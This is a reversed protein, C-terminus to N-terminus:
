LTCVHPHFPVITITCSSSLHHTFAHVCQEAWIGIYFWPRVRASCPVYLLCSCLIHVIFCLGSLLLIDIPISCRDMPICYNVMLASNRVMLVCIAGWQKDQYKLHLHCVLDKKHIYCHFCHDCKHSRAQEETQPLDQQLSQPCKSCIRLHSQLTRKDAVSKSCHACTVRRQLHRKSHENVQSGCVACLFKRDGGEHSKKHQNLAYPAGFSKNCM